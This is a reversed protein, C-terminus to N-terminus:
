SPDVHVEFFPSTAPPQAEEGVILVQAQLRYEGPTAPAMTDLRVRVSEGPALDRGLPVLPDERLLLDNGPSRWQLRVAATGPALPRLGPWTATSGNEITAWVRTLRDAIARGPSLALRSRVQDPRIAAPDLAREDGRLKSPCTVEYIADKGQEHRLSIPLLAAADVWRSREEDPLLGRHVVLWRLDTLACLDELADLDPLRAAVGMTLAHIEPPHGSYGNLLPFWHLTSGLMARGTSRLARGDMPSTAVPLDLVPGPNGHAALWRHSGVFLGALPPPSLALPWRDVRLPVALMALLVLCAAVAQERRPQRSERCRDLIAAAGFASLVAGALATAYLFRGPARLSEFGPVLWMALEYPSPIGLSSIEARTGLALVFGFSAIAVLCTRAGRPARSWGVGVVALALGIPTLELYLRSLLASATESVADVNARAALGAPLQGAARVRLYPLAVLALPAVGAALPGLVSAPRHGHRRARAALSPLAPLLLAALGFAVYIGALAQAATAGALALQRRRSPAGAVCWALLLVLPFLHLASTHLRLFSLPVDRGLAFLTGALFAASGSRTWAYALLFTTWATLWVVVLTTVNYTLVPNASLWYLPGSLPLLGLLHESSALTDPAPHFVNAQFLATPQNLAAHGTWALIWVLLDLDARAWVEAPGPPPAVLNSAANPLLPWSVGVVLAAYALGAAGAAIRGSPRAPPSTM